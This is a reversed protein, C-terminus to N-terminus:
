QSTKFDNYTTQFELNWAYLIVSNKHGHCNLTGASLTLFFRSFYGLHRSKLSLLVLHFISFFICCQALTKIKIILTWFKAFDEGLKQSYTSCDFTLHLNRLIKHGEWFIHVKVPYFTSGIKQLLIIFKEHNFGTRQTM